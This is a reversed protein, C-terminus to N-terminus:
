FWLPKWLFWWLRGVQKRLLEALIDFSEAVHPHEAGLYYERIPLYRRCMRAAEEYKAKLLLASIKDRPFFPLAAEPIPM